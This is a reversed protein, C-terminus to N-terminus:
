DALGIVLLLYGIVRLMAACRQALRHRPQTQTIGVEAEVSKIIYRHRKFSKVLAFRLHSGMEVM